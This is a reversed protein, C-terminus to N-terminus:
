SVEVWLQYHSASSGSISSVRFSYSGPPVPFCRLTQNDVEDPPGLDTALAWTGGTGPRLRYIKVTAKGADGVAVAGVASCFELNMFLTHDREVVRVVRGDLAPDLAGLTPDAVIQTLPFPGMYPTKSM